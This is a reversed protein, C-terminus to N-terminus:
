RRFAQIVPRYWWAQNRCQQPNFGPRRTQWVLLGWGEELLQFVSDGAKIGERGMLRAEGDPFQEPFPAPCMEEHQRAGSDPLPVPPSMPLM